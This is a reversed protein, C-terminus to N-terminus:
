GSQAPRREKTQPAQPAEASEEERAEAEALLRDIREFCKKLEAPDAQGNFRYEIKGASCLVVVNALMAEYQYDESVDGTWDMMVPYPLRNRFITRLTPRLLRPVGKLKAIGRIDIDDRYRKYLPRVWDELQGSGKRDAFVLVSVRDSPFVVAHETGFQDQLEFSPSQDKSGAHVTFVSLVFLLYYHINSHRM